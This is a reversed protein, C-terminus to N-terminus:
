SWMEGNVTLTALDGAQGGTWVAVLKSGRSLEQNGNAQGFSGNPSVCLVNEPAVTDLYVSVRPIPAQNVRNTQTVLSTVQWHVPGTTPGLEITAGGSADLAKTLGKTLNQRGAV